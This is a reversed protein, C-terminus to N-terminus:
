SILKLVQDAFLVIVGFMLHLRVKEAGRVMVNCAGFEEKLRSNFREAVTRERYRVAEHPAMPIVDKGRSNKDIIPVHGLTRSVEYIPKADYAADMLDYLYDVRESTMKMLPIAVQSDHVSAATLAVSIPWCCDNVDAHLKFGRWTEKYGQSNKKTGVDCHVPLERLAERASQRRQCELRTEPKPERMEGRRPRGKKRPVPKSVPLKVVAKERGRIATADRSIHGVLEPKVWRAVLAEHVRDGLGKAAFEAFARSFTAESPIDGSRIFGCIRRFNPSARLAELTSRTTPHNYVAKGVFARAMARRELLKRGCRRPLPQGISQEIQILELISVLQKEKDTLPREWCEELCPFLQRQLTGMLWSVTEKLKM